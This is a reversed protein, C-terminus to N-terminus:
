SWFRFTIDEGTEVNIMKQNTTKRNLSGLVEDYRGVKLYKIYKVNDVSDKGTYLCIDLGRGKILPGLREIYEHGELFCVVDVHKAYRKLLHQM